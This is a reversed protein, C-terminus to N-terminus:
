ILLFPICSALKGEAREQSLQRPLGVASATSTHPPTSTLFCAPFTRMARSAARGWIVEQASHVCAYKCMSLPPLVLGEEQRSGQRRGEMVCIQSGSVVTSHGM